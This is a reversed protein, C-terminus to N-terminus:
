DQLEAPLPGYMYEPTIIEVTLAACEDYANEILTKEAETEPFHKLAASLGLELFYINHAVAREMLENGKVLDRYEQLAQILKSFHKESFKRARLEVLFEMSENVITEVCTQRNMM